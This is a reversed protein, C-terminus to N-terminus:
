VVPLVPCVPCVPILFDIQQRLETASSPNVFRIGMNRMRKEGHGGHEGHNM